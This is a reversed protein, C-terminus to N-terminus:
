GYLFEKFRIARHETGQWKKFSEMFKIGKYSKDNTIAAYAGSIGKFNETKVIENVNSINMKTPTLVYSDEWSSNGYTGLGFSVLVAILDGVIYKESKQLQLHLQEAKM